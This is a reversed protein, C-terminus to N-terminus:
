KFFDIDEVVFDCFNKIEQKNLNVDMDGIKSNIILKALQIRRAKLAEIATLTHSITGLYNGVILLVPIELAEALDLFNYKENIPTMIGGATEIFLFNDNKQSRKINKQCFEVLEIFNINKKAMKAAVSPALPQEFRWPTIKDINKSSINQNLSQLIKASDSALDGDVFGSAVPKIAECSINNKLLYKCIESIFYTKGLDTGTSAILYQGTTLNIM